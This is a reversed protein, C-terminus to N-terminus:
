RKKFYFVSAIIIVLAIISSIIVVNSNIKEELVEEQKTENKEEKPAEEVIKSQCCCAADIECYEGVEVSECSVSEEDLPICSGLDFGKQTCIENCSLKKCDQECIEGSECIKDGCVFEEQSKQKVLVPNELSGTVIVTNETKLLPYSEYKSIVEAAKRVDEPTTGSIIINNELVKILGEGNKYSWSDCDIDILSNKCPNGILILKERNTVEDELVAEIELPSLGESVSVAALSDSAPAENGLVIKYTEDVNELFSFITTEASVSVALLIILLFIKKM